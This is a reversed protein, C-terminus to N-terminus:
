QEGEKSLNLTDGEILERRAAEIIVRRLWVAKNPLSRVAKDIEVPLKIGIAKNSLPGNVEGQPKFQQAKFEPSIVPSPNGKPM